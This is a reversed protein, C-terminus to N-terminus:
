GAILRSLVLRKAEIAKEIAEAKLLWAKGGQRVAQFLHNQYGVSSTKLCREKLRWCLLNRNLGTLATWFLALVISSM